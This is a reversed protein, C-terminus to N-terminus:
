ARSIKTELFEAAASTGRVFEEADKLLNAFGFVDCGQQLFLDKSASQHFQALKAVACEWDRIDSSVSLYQGADQTLLWNQTEDVAIIKPALNSFLRSTFATM